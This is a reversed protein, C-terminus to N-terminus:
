LNLAEFIREDVTTFQFGSVFLLIVHCYIALGSSFCILLILFSWKRKM